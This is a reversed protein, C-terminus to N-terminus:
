PLPKKLLSTWSSRSRSRAISRSGCSAKWGKRTGGTTRTPRSAPPSTARMSRVPGDKPYAHIEFWWDAESEIECHVPLGTVMATHYQRFLETGAMQPYEELVVKGILEAARRHFIQREAVPNIERLRWQSDMVFRADTMSDLVSQLRQNTARLTEEAQKQETIDLLAGVSFQVQGVADRVVSVTLRGWLIAGDKRIYRKEVQYGHRKGALVERYPNSDVHCDDPHTMEAVRRDKLEDRSYGLM